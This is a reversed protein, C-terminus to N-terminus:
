ATPLLVASDLLKLGEAGLLVCVRKSNSVRVAAGVVEVVMVLCRRLSASCVEVVELDSVSNRIVAEVLGRCLLRESTSELRRYFWWGRLWGCFKWRQFEGILFAM